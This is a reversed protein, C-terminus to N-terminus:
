SAMIMVKFPYIVLGQTPWHSYGNFHMFIGKSLLDQGNDHLFGMIISGLTYHTLFIYQKVQIYLVCVLIVDYNYHYIGTVWNMALLLYAKVLLTAFFIPPPDLPFM